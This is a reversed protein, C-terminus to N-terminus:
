QTETLEKEVLEVLEDLDNVRWGYPGEVSGKGERDVWVGPPFGAAAAPVHDTRMLYSVVLADERGIGREGLRALAYEFNAPAPKYSGIAEATMTVDFPSGLVASTFALSADDINSLAALTFHPRLRALARASDPWPAWTRVSAAFTRAARIHSNAGDPIAGIRRGFEVYAEGLIDTYQSAPSRACVDAEVSLFAALADAREWPTHSLSLLPSLATYLGTHWDILTGYVDFLLAKHATLPRTPTIPM